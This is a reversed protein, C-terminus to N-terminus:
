KKKAPKEAALRANEGAQFAAMERILDIPVPESLPFQVASKSRKYKALQEAFADFAAFPPPQSLSFHSKFGSFYFVWGHYKLAPVQYSIVEEADPAGERLAQRVASLIAQMEAPFTAIYEDVSQFDTKAM